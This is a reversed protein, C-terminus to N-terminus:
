CVHPLVRDFRSPVPPTRRDDHRATTSRGGDTNERSNLFDTASADDIDSAQMQLHLNLGLTQLIM